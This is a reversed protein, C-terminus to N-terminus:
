VQNQSTPGMDPEYLSVVSLWPLSYDNAAILLGKAAEGALDELLWQYPINRLGHKCDKRVPNLSCEKILPTQFIQTGVQLPSCDEFHYNGFILPGLM